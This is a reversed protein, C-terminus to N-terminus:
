SLDAGHRWHLRDILMAWGRGWPLLRGTALQGPPCVERPLAAWLEIRDVTFEALSFRSDAWGALLSAPLPGSLAMRVECAVAGEAPELPDRSKGSTGTSLRPEAPTALDVVYGREHPDQPIRLRGTWATGMSDPILLAGGPELDSLEADDLRLRCISLIAASRQWRLRRALGAPPLGALRMLTWPVELRCRDFSGAVPDGGAACGAQAFPGGSPGAAPGAPNWQWDLDAALWSDIAQLLDDCEDLAIAAGTGGLAEPPTRVWLRVGGAPVSADYRLWTGPVEPEVPRTGSPASTPSAASEAASAAPAAAPRASPAASPAASPTTPSPTLVEM